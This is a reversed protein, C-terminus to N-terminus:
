SLIGIEAAHIWNCECVRAEWEIRYLMWFLCVNFVCEFWKDYTLWIIEIWEKESDVVFYKYLFTEHISLLQQKM